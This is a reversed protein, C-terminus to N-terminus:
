KMTLSVDATAANGKDVTVRKMGIGAPASGAQVVYTGDAVNAFTYTGDAASITKAVIPLGRDPLGRGPPTDQMMRTRIGDSGAPAGRKPPRRLTVQTSPVPKGDADLVKGSVSGTAKAEQLFRIERSLSAKVVLPLCVITMVMATRFLNISMKIGMWFIPRATFM